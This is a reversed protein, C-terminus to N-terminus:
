RKPNPALSSIPVKKVSPIMLEDIRYNLPEIHESGMRCMLVADLLLHTLPDPVSKFQEVKNNVDVEMDKLSELGKLQQTHKAQNERVCSVSAETCAKDARLLCTNSYRKDTSSQAAHIAM